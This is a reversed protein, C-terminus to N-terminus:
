EEPPLNTMGRAFRWQGDASRHLVSFARQQVIVVEGGARPTRKNRELGRMFARDGRVILEQCEYDQLFIFNEFFPAFAEALAARGVLPQAGHSWFEADETVLSTVAETNGDLVAQRWEDLLIFIDQVDKDSASSGDALINAVDISACRSDAQAGSEETVSAVAILWSCVICVIRILKM